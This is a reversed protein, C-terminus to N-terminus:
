RVPIEGEKDVLPEEGGRNDQTMANFAVQKSEMDPKPTSGMNTGPRFVLPKDDEDDPRAGAGTYLFGQSPSVGPHLSFFITNITCLLFLTLYLHVFEFNM